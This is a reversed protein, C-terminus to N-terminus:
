VLRVLSYCNCSCYFVYGCMCLHAPQSFNGSSPWFMQDFKPPIRYSSLINHFYKFFISAVVPPAHYYECSPRPQVLGLCYAGQSLSELTAELLESNKAKEFLKFRIEPKTTMCKRQINCHSISPLFESNLLPPGAMQEIPGHRLACAFALLSTIRITKKDIKMGIHATTCAHYARYTSRLTQINRRFTFFTSHLPDYKRCSPEHCELGSRSNLLISIGHSHYSQLSIRCVTAILPWM